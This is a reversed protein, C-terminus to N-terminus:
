QGSIRLPQPPLLEFNIRWVERDKMVDMMKSPHLGLRNWGLDEIYDTCTTRPRRVPRGWNAEAFLVQKLLREQSM